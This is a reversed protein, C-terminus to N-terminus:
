ALSPPVIRHHCQGSAAACAGSAALPQADQLLGLGSAAQVRRWGCLQGPLSAPDPAPAPAPVPPAAPRGLVITVQDEGDTRVFGVGFDKYSCDNIAGSAQSVALRTGDPVNNASGFPASHGAVDFTGQYQGTPPVGPLTNGVAHQAEGELPVSYNLPPCTSGARATIVAQRIPALSDAHAMPAMTLVLTAGTLTTAFAVASCARAKSM